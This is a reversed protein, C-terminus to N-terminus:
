DTHQGHIQKIIDSIKQSYDFTEDYFFRLEPLYRISLKDKLEHRMFPASRKLISHSNKRQELNGMVTFYVKAIKFDSSLKVQTLTILGKGPNKLKRDIIWSLDNKIQHALRRARRSEKKM